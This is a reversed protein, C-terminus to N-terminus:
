LINIEAIVFTSGGIFIFDDKSSLQKVSEYAINVNQFYKKFNIPLAKAEGCKLSRNSDFETFYLNVDVPVHKVISMVDKDNAFGLIIHKKGSTAVECIQPGLYKWAAENHGTDCITLPDDALKQWRGMLGTNKIVNQLGREITPVGITQGIIIQNFVEISRLVTGINQLQYAGALPSHVDYVNVTSKAKFAIEGNQYQVETAEINDSFYLPSKNKESIEVFIPETEADREGIVVPVGFKIIGAKEAAIKARTDGLIKQHDLGISTIVSLVPIIINTSDLRGGLGVEIVAVDVEFKDFWFFALAVSVEFFTPSLTKIEGVILNVFELVVDESIEKGNIRFRERYNKLHPSTYLGVSLGNEQLISAIFHSCSGKGNTGAVHICTLRDQPNGISKCLAKINDLDYKIASFGQKQFNPLQGFILREAEFYNM